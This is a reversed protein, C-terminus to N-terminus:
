KRKEQLVLKLFQWNGIIYRQHLRKPEQIYRYFWECGIKQIWKPARKTKGSLVDFSGGVGMIFPTNIKAQNKQIWVEKHPSSFGLFLIDAQSKKIEQLLIEEEEAPYYGNHFGAIPLDPYDVEIKGIMKELSEATAGLFFIRYRNEEAIKLLRNFIEVGPIRQKVPVGLIRGAWVISMGDANVIDAQNIINRLQENSQIQNIKDANVSVQYTPIKKNIRDVIHQLTAELNICDIYTGLLERRNEIM